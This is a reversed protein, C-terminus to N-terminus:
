LISYFLVSYLLISDFRISDFLISCFQIYTSYIYFLHLIYYTHALCAHSVEELSPQAAAHIAAALPSLQTQDTPVFYDRVVALKGQGGQEVLEDAEAIEEPTLEVM